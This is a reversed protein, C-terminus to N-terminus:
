IGPGAFLDCTRSFLIHHRSRSDFGCSDESGTSKSDVADALEAMGAPQPLIRRILNQGLQPAGTACRM